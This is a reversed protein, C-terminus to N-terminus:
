KREGRARERREIARLADVIDLAHQLCDAGADLFDMNLAAVAARIHVKAAHLRGTRDFRENEDTM